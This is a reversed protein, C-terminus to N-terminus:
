DPREGSSQNQKSKTRGNGRSLGLDRKGAPSKRLGAGTEGGLLGPIEALVEARLLQDRCAIDCQEM